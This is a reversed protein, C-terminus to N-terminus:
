EKFRNGRRRNIRMVKAEAKDSLGKSPHTRLLNQHLKIGYQLANEWADWVSKAPPLMYEEGIVSGYGDTLYFRGDNNTKTTANPYKKLVRRKIKQFMKRRQEVPLDYLRKNM